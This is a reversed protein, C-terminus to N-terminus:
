SGRQYVEITPNLFAPSLQPLFAPLKYAFSQIIGYNTQGAKLRTFFECEVKNNECVYTDNFRDATFSDVVFYKPRRVEIGAEGQNFKYSKDVPAAQGPFKAFFIPYSFARSFQGEPINPPYLTMEVSKGKQLTALYQGAAIRSDHTFLLGVSTARLGSIVLLTLAVVVVLGQALRYGALEALYWLDGLFCAVLVASLPILPLFFRAPFNYSVLIPLDIAAAALLLIGILDMRLRDESLRRTLVLIGKIIFYAFALLVFIFIVSGLASRFITWQGVLGIVDGPERDYLAHHQLAIVVQQFYYVPATLAKPTGIGFGLASIALGLLLIGAAKAPNKRVTGWESVLFVVVVAVILSLGNYKSSAALGVGLFAALLWFRKGKVRYFFLCLVTLLIFFTLYIDNHAFRANIAMESSTAILLAALLASYISGGILRALRYGIMVVLGGLVVSIFRVALMFSTKTFGVWYMVKGIAYMGWKPLSPYDFNEFDIPTTGQIARDVWHVLEDTNWIGPAGWSLGPLTILLFFLFLALPIFKEARQLFNNIKILKNM